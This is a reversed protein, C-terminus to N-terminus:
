SRGVDILISGQTPELIGAILRALTSKGSGMKGVLAVKQGPLIKFSLNNIVPPSSSDFSYSVNKFEIEGDFQPRSIPSQKYGGSFKSGILVNLNRYATLASNARSLTNALQTLPSLTRGGLIVAGILAGQTITGEVILYLEFFDCQGSRM